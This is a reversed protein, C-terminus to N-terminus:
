NSHGLATLLDSFGPIGKTIQHAYDTGRISIPNVSRGFDPPALCWWPRFGVSTRKELKRKLPNVVIATVFGGSLFSAFRVNTSHGSIKHM